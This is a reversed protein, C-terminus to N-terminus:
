WYGRYFILLVARHNKLLEPESIPKGDANPLTFMPAPQGVRLAGGSIPLDKAAYFVGYCFFGAMLLSLAALIAGSVKGRYVEPERHARGLGIGIMGGGLLFLFLNVWPVDRTSPFLAFLPIYSLLGVLVIAFGAGVLINRRRKM